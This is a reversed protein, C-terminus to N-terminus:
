SQNQMKGKQKAKKRDLYEPFFHLLTTSDHKQKNKIHYAQIKKLFFNLYYGVHAM